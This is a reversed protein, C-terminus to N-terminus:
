AEEAALWDLAEGCHEALQEITAICSLAWEKLDVQEDKGLLTPIYFSYYHSYSDNVTQVSLGSEPLCDRLRENLLNALQKQRKIDSKKEDKHRISVCVIYYHQRMGKSALKELTNPGEGRMAISFGFDFPAVRWSEKAILRMLGAFSRKTWPEGTTEELRFIAEDAMWNLFDGFQKMAAFNKPPKDWKVGSAISDNYFQQVDAIEPMDAHYNTM